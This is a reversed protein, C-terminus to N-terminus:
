TEMGIMVIKLRREKELHDSFQREVSPTKSKIIKKLLVQNPIQLGSDIELEEIVEHPPTSWKKM